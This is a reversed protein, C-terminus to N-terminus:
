RAAPARMEGTFGAVLQSLLEPNAFTDLGLRLDASPLSAARTLLEFVKGASSEDAVLWPSQRILRELAVAPSVADLRTASSSEVRPFLMGGLPASAIRRGEAFSSEGVTERVGAPRGSKWGADLHFDDPWGEVTVGSKRRFIVVYDDSLYSWGARILNATTTSKGSHSDGVLLWANGTVPDIIGGAHVPTRGDRVLLLAAVITLISTMDNMASADVHGVSVNAVRGALDVSSVITSGSNELWMSDRSESLWARVRGLALIPAGSLDPRELIDRGVRISDGRAHAAAHEHAIKPMWQAAVDRLTEDISLILSGDSVLPQHVYSTM